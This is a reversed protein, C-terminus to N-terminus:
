FRYYLTLNIKPGSYDDTFIVVKSFKLYHYRFELGVFWHRSIIFDFGTGFNLGYGVNKDNFEFSIIKKLEPDGIFIGAGYSVFPSIPSDSILIYKIDFLVPVLVITKNEGASSYDFHEISLRLSLNNSIPAQMLAGLYLYKKSMSFAMPDETSRLNNPRWSGIEFGVCIHRGHNIDTALCSQLYALSFLFCFTKWIKFRKVTSM